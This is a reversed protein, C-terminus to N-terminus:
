NEKTAPLPRDEPGREVIFLSAGTVETFDRSNLVLYDKDDFVWHSKPDNFDKAMGNESVTGLIIDGKRIHNPVFGEAYRIGPGAAVVRMMVPSERLKSAKATFGTQSKQLEEKQLEEIRPRDLPECVIAFGQPQPIV